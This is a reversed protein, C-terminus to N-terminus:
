SSPFNAAYSKPKISELKPEIVEYEFGSKTAFAIAEEKSSFEFNFQSSTDKASVWGMLPNIGRINEEIPVMLWKKLKARGSQMANKTPRYIRFKM